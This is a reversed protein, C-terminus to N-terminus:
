RRPCYSCPIHECNVCKPQLTTSKPGDKCQCCWWWQLPGKTFPQYVPAPASVNYRPTQERIVPRYGKSGTHGGITEPLASTPRPFVISHSRRHTPNTDERYSHSPKNTAEYYTAYLDEQRGCSCCHPNLGKTNPEWGCHGCKWLWIPPM